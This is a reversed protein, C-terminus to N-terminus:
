PNRCFEVFPQLVKSWKLDEAIGAANARCLARLKTDDLMRFLAAELADIDEAPVTLGVPTAAIMDAFSDGGTTVIPLSAWLYDLIRTRFSFATEVHDFHTSVGVDAELLYNQRDDYAVWQENFFVHTDVIG